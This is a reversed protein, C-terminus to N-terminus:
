ATTIRIFAPARAGSGGGAGAGVFGDASNRYARVSYTHSAATPTLVRALNVPVILQNSAALGPQVVCWEGLSTSGDYLIIWVSSTATAGVWVSHAFFQIMIKQSGSTTVAAATVITNAGVETTASVTQTSTIEAYALETSGGSAATAWKVGTTQTSDATLVQGNTGVALKAATDAGTAVALDGKTDWLTDTAMGAGGGLTAYDVWAGSVVREIKSHTTCVYLTGNPLGTAAPRNAHTDPGLFHGIFTTAPM